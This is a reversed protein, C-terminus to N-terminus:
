GIPAFAAPPTALYFLRNGRTPRAREVRELQQRLGEYTKPDDFDAQVYSVCSFLRDAVGEHRM